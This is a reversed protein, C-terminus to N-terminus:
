GAKSLDVEESRPSRDHHASKTVTRSRRREGYAIAAIYTIGAIAAVVAYAIMGASTNDALELGLGGNVIGLLIATRGLWIHVHSWITRRHHKKFM